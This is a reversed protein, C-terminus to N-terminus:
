DRYLLPKVWPSLLQASALEQYRGAEDMQRLMFWIDRARRNYLAEGTATGLAHSAVGLYYLQKHIGIRNLYDTVNRRSAVHQLFYRVDDFQYDPEVLRIEEIADTLITVVAFLYHVVAEEADAGHENQYEGMEAHALAVPQHHLRYLQLLRSLGKERYINLFADRSRSFVDAYYGADERLLAQLASLWGELNGDNKHLSVQRYLVTYADQPSLLHKKLRYAEEYKEAALEKEGEIRYIDGLAMEVEPFGPRQRTDLVKTFLYLARGYEGRDMEQQAKEYLLWWPEENARCLAIAALGLM